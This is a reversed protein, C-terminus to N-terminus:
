HPTPGPGFWPIDGMQGGAWYKRACSPCLRKNELNGNPEAQVMRRLYSLYAQPAMVEGCMECTALPLEATQTGCFIISRHDESDHMRINKHPCVQVCSGCGICSRSPKHFDTLALRGEKTTTLTLSKVGMEECVAQCLGCGVCLDCRLCRMGELRAHQEDLGLEVRNFTTKREEMNLLQMPPRHASTIEDAGREFFEMRRRPKKEPPGKPIPEGKLYADISRAAWKGAGVAQVVTAPGTVVDGGSFVGELNTALTQKDTVIRSRTDVAVNEREILCTIDPKQSIAAIVGEVPLVFESGQMPVPRRRGSADPEGLEAQLCELGTVRGGEGVIRKPITLYLIEVGEEEAQVIEAEWAPMEGRTRRYAIYVKECGLRVCTRAADIAANGGGIVVVRKAPITKRGMRVERLLSLSDTVYLLEAEGEIGLKMGEHAGVGLFFAEFGEERLEELSYERGVRVGTRLEVGLNLIERIEKQVVAIPLRYEPIGTALIGGAVPLAEFITVKYGRRALFYACSLGAPGSGVVAVKKKKPPDCLPAPYEGHDEMVKEAAFGKLAMISIPEDMEGRTCVRECPHTCIIGCVWPLPNDERIVEIAERYKGQAVLALYTPIDIGAPCAAQCPSTQLGGRSGTACVGQEVHHVYDFSFEKLSTNLPRALSRESGQATMAFLEVGLQELSHMHSATGTGEEIEGLLRKIRNFVKGAEPEEQQFAELNNFAMELTQAVMCVTDDLVQLSGSGMSVGQEALLEFDLPTDLNAASLFGGTSGGFQVAKLTTDEALGGAYDEMIEQISSGLPVEKLGPEKVPGRVDLLKTGSIGKGLSRYWDEGKGLVLPVHSWTEPNQLITPWGFLGKFPGRAVTAERGIIEELYSLQHEAEWMFFSREGTIIHVELLADEGLMGEALAEQAALRLKDVLAYNEQRLYLFAETSGVAMAGCIMGEIVLHPSRSLLEKYIPFDPDPDDAVCIVYKYDSPANQCARWPIYLPTGAGDLSRLGAERLLRIVERGGQRATEVAAGYGGAALYSAASPSDLRSWLDTIPLEPKSGKSM